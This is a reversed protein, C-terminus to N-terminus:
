IIWFKFSSLELFHFCFLQNHQNTLRLMHFVLYKKCVMRLSTAMKHAFSLSVFSRLYCDLIYVSSLYNASTWDPNQYINICAKQYVCITHILYYKVYSLIYPDLRVVIKKMLFWLLCPKFLKWIIKLFSIIFWLHLKASCRKQEWLIKYAQDKM